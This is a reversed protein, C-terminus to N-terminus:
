YIREAEEKQADQYAKIMKRRAEEVKPANERYREALKAYNRIMRRTKVPDQHADFALNGTGMLHGHVGAFSQTLNKSEEVKKSSSLLSDTKRAAEIKADIEEQSLEKESSSFCGFILLFVSFFLIEKL